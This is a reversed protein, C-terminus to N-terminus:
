RTTATSFPESPRRANPCDANLTAITSLRLHVADREDPFQAAAQGSGPLCRQIYRAAGV